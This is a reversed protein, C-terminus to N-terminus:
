FIIKFYRMLNNTLKYSSAKEGGRADDIVDLFLKETDIKKDLFHFM